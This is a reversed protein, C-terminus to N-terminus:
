TYTKRHVYIKMEKPYIDLLVIASDCPLLTNVKILFQCVTKWLSQKAHRGAIFVREHQGAVKSAKTLTTGARIKWQESPHVSTDRRELKWYGVAESAAWATFIGGATCSVQTQDRSQFTGRSFPIAVRELIRAQSIGHVSSGPLSCDMPNNLTPCSQAVWM